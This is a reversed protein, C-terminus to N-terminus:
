DDIETSVRGGKILRLFDTKALVAEPERPRNEDENALDWLWQTVALEVTSGSLRGNNVLSPLYREVVPRMPFEVTPPPVDGPPLSEQDWLHGTDQSVVLFFRAWVKVHGYAILNRRLASAIDPTLNERNKVEVLALVGGDAAQVVIDTGISLMQMKLRRRAPAWSPNRGALIL